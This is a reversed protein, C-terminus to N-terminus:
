VVGSWAEKPLATTTYISAPNGIHLLCMTFGSESGPFQEVPAGDALARQFCRQDNVSPARRCQDIVEVLIRFIDM